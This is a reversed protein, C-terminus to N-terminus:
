KATVYSNFIGLTHMQMALVQPNSDKWQSETELQRLLNLSGVQKNKNIASYCCLISPM